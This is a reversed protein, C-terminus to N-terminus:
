AMRKAERLGSLWAGHVTAAHARHTAEGAFFLRDHVPKAMVDYDEGKAGMRLHSYSGGSLEDRFWRTRVMAKPAVVKSGFMAKLARMLQDRLLGDSLGEVNRAFSGGSFAMLAHVDSFRRLNMFVPFEGKRPSMYGLFDRDSPWFTKDFVMAVKNLTGMGLRKIARLKDPPLPPVFSVKRKKLVGLPLTVLAMEGEFTGKDTVVKVGAKSHEITKVRHGLRVDLKEARKKPIADYGDPFLADGGGFDKGDDSQLLSLNRFDEAMAIEQTAVVWDLARKEDASLKEGAVAQGVAQAMTMDTNLSAALKEMAGSVEAWGQAIEKTDGGSLKRGDHDYLHVDGYDSGHTRLSLQKAIASLPNDNVGHIWSAGLDVPLGLSRDTWIRGGVRDRGELVIVSKGKERLADAAALGAMGAGVVLVQAKKANSRAGASAAPKGKGAPEDDCGAAL